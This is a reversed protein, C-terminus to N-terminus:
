EGNRDAPCFNFYSIRNNSLLESHCQEAPYGSPLGTKASVVWSARPRIDGLRSAVGIAPIGLLEGVAGYTARTRYTELYQLIDESNM